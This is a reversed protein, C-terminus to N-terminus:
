MDHHSHHKQRSHNANKVKHSGSQPEPQGHNHGKPSNKRIDKGDNKNLTITEKYLSKCFLLHEIIHQKFLTKRNNCQTTQANKYSSYRSTSHPFIFKSKLLPSM